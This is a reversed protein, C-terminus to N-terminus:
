CDYIKDKEVGLKGYAGEGWAYIFGENTICLSHTMGLAIDIVNFDELTVIKKPRLEDINVGHGL